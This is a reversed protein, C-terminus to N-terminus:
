VDIGIITYINKAHMDEAKECRILRHMVLIDLARRIDSRQGHTQAVINDYSLSTSTSFNPRVALLVVYVKLTMLAVVGRNPLDKLDRLVALYPVKAWGSDKRHLEVVKYTNSYAGRTVEILSSEELYKLGKIVM